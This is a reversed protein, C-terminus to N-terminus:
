SLLSGSICSLVVTSANFFIVVKFPAKQPDAPVIGMNQEQASGSTQAPYFVKLHITDYPSAADEVKVAQFLARISM